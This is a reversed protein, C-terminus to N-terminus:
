TNWEGWFRPFLKVRLVPMTKGWPTEEARVSLPTDAKGWLPTAEVMTKRSDDLELARCGHLTLRDPEPVDWHFFEASNLVFNWSEMWGTGGASFVFVDDSQAGPGYMLHESWLGILRADIM